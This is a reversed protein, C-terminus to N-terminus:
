YDGERRQKRGFQAVHLMLLPRTLRACSYAPPSTSWSPKPPLLCVMPRAFDNADSSLSTYCNSYSLTYTTMADLLSISEGNEKNVRRTSSAKACTLHFRESFPSLSLYREDILDHTFASIAISGRVATPAKAFTPYHEVDLRRRVYTQFFTLSMCMNQLDRERLANYTTTNIPEEARQMVEFLNFGYAVRGGKYTKTRRGAQGKPKPITKKKAKTDKGTEESFSPCGDAYGLSAYHCHFLTYDIYIFESKYTKTM